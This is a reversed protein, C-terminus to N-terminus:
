RKRWSWFLHKNSLGRKDDFDADEHMALRNFERDWKGVPDKLLVDLWERTLPMASPRFFMYGINYASQAM